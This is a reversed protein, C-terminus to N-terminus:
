RAGTPRLETVFMYWINESALEVRVYRPPVDARDRVHVLHKPIGVREVRVYRPPVDARDRVHNLHKIAGALEVRVYRTPM